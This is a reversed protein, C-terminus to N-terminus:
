HHTLQEVRSGSPKSFFFCAPLLAPTLALSHLFSAGAHPLPNPHLPFLPTQPQPNADLISRYWCVKIHTYKQCSHQLPSVQVWTDASTCTARNTHQCICSKGWCKRSSPSQGSKGASLLLAEYSSVPGRLAAAEPVKQCRKGGCLVATFRRQARLCTLCQKAWVLLM